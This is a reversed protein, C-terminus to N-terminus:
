AEEYVFVSPTRTTEDMKSGCKLCGQVRVEQLRKQSRKITQKTVNKTVM